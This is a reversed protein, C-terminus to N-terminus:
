SSGPLGDRTAPGPRRPREREPMVQRPPANKAATLMRQFEDEFRSAFAPDDVIIANEDNDRDAGESFNFSGFITTRGDVVFVKHHMVYPNGDQYVDLGAERM